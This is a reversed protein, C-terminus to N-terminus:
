GVLVGAYWDALAAASESLTMGGTRPATRVSYDDIAESMVTIDPASYAAAVSELVAAAVDDTVTAYGYTYDVEVLDPPFNSRLGWGNRRYLSQEIVKYDTGVTLVVGNIRVQVVTVLPAHPMIIEACGSGPKSYTTSLTGGWHSKARAEFLGVIKTLALTATATDVDYKLFSALDAPTPYAV